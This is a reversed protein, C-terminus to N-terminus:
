IDLDAVPAYVLNIGVSRAERATIEGCRGAIEENGIFGLAAPAPLHTLGELQQAGGREFDSGILLPHASAAQLQGALRRAADATGGFIIYGGVGLELTADIRAQEHRYGTRARWRLSPFIVRAFRNM